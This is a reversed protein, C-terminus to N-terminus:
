LDVQAEGPIQRYLLAGLMREYRKKALMKQLGFAVRRHDARGAIRGRALHSLDDDQPRDVVRPSVAFCRLRTIDCPWDAPFRIPYAKELMYRVGDGTIGYGTTLFPARRVRLGRYGAFVECDAHRDCRGKRHDLLMLDGAWRMQGKALTAFATGIIADDELILARDIGREAITRYIALHSLACAYEGDTMRRRKKEIRASRDVMGEFAAPLGQRGDIGPFLEFELGLSRLKRTLPQWRAEADALTLVFIPYHQTM